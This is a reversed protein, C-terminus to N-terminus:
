VRFSSMIGDFTYAISTGDLDSRTLTNHNNGDIGYTYTYQSYKAKGTTNGRQNTVSTVRYIADYGINSQMGNPYSRQTVNGAFDYSYNFTKDKGESHEILSTLRNDSDYDM